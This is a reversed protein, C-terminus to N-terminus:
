LITYTDSALVSKISLGYVGLSPVNIQMTIDYENEEPKGIVSVNEVTVRPEMNPLKNEIDDQIIDATFDDVPEFLYQNLNIGYTPNLIKQGPVTLFATKISNKVSEIDYIAQVDKLYEKKNLQNNLSFSPELDFSIDKYLYDNDVSKESLTDIKLSKIKIAM